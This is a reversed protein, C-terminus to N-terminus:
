KNGEKDRNNVWDNREVFRLYYGFPDLLRFDLKGYREKLEGVIKDQHKKEAIGYTEKINGVPIIIEVGIGKPANKPFRKFYSQEYVQENGCWFNLISDNNRMVLYGKKEEPKKEWVVQYGFDAYFDKALEFDPIHLEIMIDGLLKKSMFM